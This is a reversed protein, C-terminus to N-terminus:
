NFWFVFHVFKALHGSEEAGLFLKTSLDLLGENLVNGGVSEGESGVGLVFESEVLVGLLIGGDLLDVLLVGVEGDSVVEHGGPGVGLVLSEESVLLSGEEGGLVGNLEGLDIGWSGNVPSGLTGDVWNLVLSLATGAPGEGGGEGVLSSVEELASFEEGEGLLLENGAVGVGHSAISTELGVSEHVELLVSLVELGGIWVGRSVSNGSGAIGGLGGSWNLVSSIGVDWSLGDWLQLSSKGLLWNGEGDLGILENELHVGM